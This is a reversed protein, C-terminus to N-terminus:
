NERVWHIKTRSPAFWWPLGWLWSVQYITYPIHYITYPLHYITCVEDDVDTANCPWKESKEAELIDNDHGVHQGDWRDGSMIIMTLVQRRRSKGRFTASKQRCLESSDKTLLTVQKFTWCRRWFWIIWFRCIQKRSPEWWAQVKAMVEATVKDAEIGSWSPSSLPSLWSIIIIMTTVFTVFIMMFNVKALIVM